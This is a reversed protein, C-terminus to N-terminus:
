RTFTKVSDEAVLTAQKLETLTSFARTDRDGSKVMDTVGFSTHAANYSIRYKVYKNQKEIGNEAAWKEWANTAYFVNIKAYEASTFGGLMTSGSSDVYVWRGSQTNTPEENLVTIAAEALGLYAAGAKLFNQVTKV